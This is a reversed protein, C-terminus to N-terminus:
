ASLTFGFDLMQDLFAKRVYVPDEPRRQKATSLVWTKAHAFLPGAFGCKSMWDRVNKREGNEVLILKALSGYTGFGELVEPEHGEVDIKVFDPIVELRDCITDLRCGEISILSVNAENATIVHNTSLDQGDTFQIQGDRSSIALNLCTVNQRGNLRVNERLWRFTVPHPEVSIVTAESIESAVITYSGINAGVDILTGKTRFLLLRILEMNNFDYEGMANVLAAVGCPREVRLRSDAIRLEVPFRNFVRRCQWALHRSLGESAQVSDCNLIQRVTNFFQIM